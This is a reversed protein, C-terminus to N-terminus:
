FFLDDVTVFYVVDWLYISIEVCLISDCENMMYVFQFFFLWMIIDDSALFIM